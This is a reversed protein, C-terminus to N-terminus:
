FLGHFLQGTILPEYSIDIILSFLLLQALALAIACAVAMLVSTKARMTLAAAYLASSLPLGILPVAALYAATAALNEFAGLGEQRPTSREILAKTVVLAALIVGIVSIIKPVPSGGVPQAFAALLSLGFILLLPLALTSDARGLRSDGSEANKRMARIAFWAFVIVMVISAPRAFMAWGWIQSTQIYSIEALPGMVFGLLFPARSWGAWKLAIGFVGGAAFQLLTIWHLDQYLAGFLSLAIVFPVMHERRLAALRVIGPVAMFFMPIAILNALLIAIALIFSVDIDTTLLQPGVPQGIVMFAGLMIAMSSSGPIGFFLTPVMAGGEKSNNATEPAIVGAIAGEGYPIDSEVHRAAYAYSMWVSVSSGLGPMIGVWIGYLSSRLVLHLHALTTRMGAAVDRLNTSIARRHGKEDFTWRTLTEPIVFIGGIVAALDLGDLLEPRGLTLRTAGTLVDIGGCAALIGGAVALL